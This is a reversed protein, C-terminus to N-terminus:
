PLTSAATSVARPGSPHARADAREDQRGQEDGRGHTRRWRALPHEARRASAGGLPRLTVAPQDVPAAGGDPPREDLVRRDAVPEDLHAKTGDAAALVARAADDPAPAVRAVVVDGAGVRQGAVDLGEPHHIAPAVVENGVAPRGAEVAAAGRRPGPVRQPHVERAGLEQHREVTPSEERHAVIRELARARHPEPRLGVAHGLELSELVARVSVGVPADASLGPTEPLRFRGNLMVTGTFTYKGEIESGEDIFATLDSPKGAPKTRKKGFM